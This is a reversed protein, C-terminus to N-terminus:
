YVPWPDEVRLTDLSVMTLGLQAGDVIAFSELEPVYDLRRPLVAPSVSSLSTVLPRFGGNTQWFFTMGRVSPQLGRYVVFRSSLNEHICATAREESGSVDITADARACAGVPVDMAPDCAKYSCPDGEEASGVTCREEGTVDICSQSSAVEFVRSNSYKKKPDCARHCRYLGDDERIAAVDNDIGNAIGSIVWQKQVRIRYQVGQPFCCALRKSLEARDEPTTANKPDIVLRSQYAERVV